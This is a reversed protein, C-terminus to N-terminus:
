KAKIWKSPNRAMRPTNRVNRTGIAKGGTHDKLRGRPVPRGAGRPSISTKM